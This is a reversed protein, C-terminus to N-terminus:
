ASPSALLPPLATTRDLKCSVRWASCHPLREDLRVGLLHLVPAYGRRNLFVLSQEGQESTAAAFRRPDTSPSLTERRVHTADIM